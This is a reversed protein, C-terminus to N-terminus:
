VHATSKEIELSDGGDQMLPNQESQQGPSARHGLFDYASEAHEHTDVGEVEAETSVRFGM